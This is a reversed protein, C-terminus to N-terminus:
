VEKAKKDRKNKDRKKIIRALKRCPFHRPRVLHGCTSCLVRQDM